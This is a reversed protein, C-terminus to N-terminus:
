SSGFLINKVVFLYGMRTISSLGSIAYGGLFRDFLADSSILSGALGGSDGGGIM